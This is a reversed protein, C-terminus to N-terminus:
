PRALEFGPIAPLLFSSLDSSAANIAIFEDRVFPWKARNPDTAGRIAIQGIVVIRDNAKAIGCVAKAEFSDGPQGMM